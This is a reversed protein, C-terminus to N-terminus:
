EGEPTKPQAAQAAELFANIKDFLVGVSSLENAKFAGRQTVVEILNRIAALDNLNLEPKSASPEQTTETENESM